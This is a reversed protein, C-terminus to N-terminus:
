EISFEASEESWGSQEEEESNCYRTRCIYSGRELSPCSMRLDHNSHADAVLWTKWKFEKMPTGDQAKVKCCQVQFKYKEATQGEVFYPGLRIFQYDTSKKYQVQKVFQKDDSPTVPFSISPNKTDSLSELMGDVLSTQLAKEFVPAYPPVLTSKDSFFHDGPDIKEFTDDPAILYRCTERTTLLMDNTVFQQESPKIKLPHDRNFCKSHDFVYLDDNFAEFKARADVLCPDIRLIEKDTMEDFPIPVHTEKKKGFRDSLWKLNDKTWMPAVDKKDIVSSATGEKYVQVRYLCDEISDKAILRYVFVPKTQGMRFCRAVAQNDDAPNWSADVLIVRNGATLNIGVGGAKTAVYMISGAVRNFEEIYENRKTACTDGIYISGTRLIAIQKLTEIYPSFVVIGDTPAHSKIADIINVVLGTKVDRCSSALKHRSLLCRDGDSDGNDDEDSDSDGDCHHALKFEFKNLTRHLLDASCYHMVDECQKHIMWLRREMSLKLKREMKMREEDDRDTMKMQGAQIDNGYRKNFEAVNSGLLGPFCLNVMTYFEQLNNQMATGTMLIRKTTQMANIAKFMQTSASKLLLHAEDVVVILDSTDTDAPMLGEHLWKRYLDHGIVLIGGHRQWLRIDRGISDSRLVPYCELEIAPRWNDVEDAWPQVMGKPCTVVAHLPKMQTSYVHLTALVTLTKGMGMSHAVITGRNRLLNDLIFRMCESQHDKLMTELESSIRFGKYWSAGTDICADAEEVGKADAEDSHFCVRDAPMDNELLETGDLTLVVCDAAEEADTIKHEYGTAGMPVTRTSYMGDKVEVPAVSELYKDAARRASIAQRDSAAKEVSPKIYAETYFRRMDYGADDLQTFLECEREALSDISRRLKKKIKELEFWTDRVPRKRQADVHQAMIGLFTPHKEDVRCVEDYEDCAEEHDANVQQLQQFVKEM